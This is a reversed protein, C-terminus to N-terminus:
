NMYLGKSKRKIIILLYGLLIFSIGVFLWNYISTATDPLEEGEVGESHNTTNEDKGSDSDTADGDITKEKKSDDVKSEENDRDNKSDDKDKDKDEDQDNDSDSDDKSDDEDETEFVSPHFVAFISFHDTSAIVNGDAYNGGVEKWEAETENWYYVLLDENSDTMETIAFSLTVKETFTSITADGQQLTMLYISSSALDSSPLVDQNKEILAITITLAEEKEFNVAPIKLEIDSKSLHITVNRDVLSNIQEKTFRIEEINELENNLAITLTGNEAVTNVEVDSVGVYNGYNIPTAIVSNQRELVLTTVESEVKEGYLGTVEAWVDIEQVNGIDESIFINGERDFTLIDPHSTQFKITNPSTVPADLWGESPQQDKVTPWGDEWILPDIMLPRRTAGPPLLPDNKDIAHYVIWDQGVEDTILANHGPGVFTDGSGRLIITGQEGNGIIDNGDKDLYPGKLSESRAVGVRYRSNAGDCCSDMSGFFYYYGDRKVIYPAEFTTGAIQFKEGVYDLGDESLEIGWIGHWSGWFLYPTGDDDVFLQPDISNNVGIENSDFLMGQDEFPGAPHDAIAVGIAPSPDHWISVSYYLYYKDNFHVIDPAWLFGESKWNPKEEFAHGIFEWNILDLSRVIPVPRLGEGDGWDDETGYAYYYGDEGKIISPDALVPEFVPNKFQKVEFPNVIDGNSKHIDLLGNIQLGPTFTTRDLRFDADTVEVAADLEFHVKYTNTIEGDLSTVQIESTGPLEDTDSITYHSGTQVNISPVRPFDFPLTVTYEFVDSDFGEITKGNVRLDILSADVTTTDKVVHINKFEVATDESVLGIQGSDVAFGREKMLEGNLFFKFNHGSKEVRLTNFENHNFDHPLTVNSWGAVEGNVVGYTALANYNKDLWVSVFNDDDQYVAYLGHKNYNSVDGRELLRIDAEVSYHTDLMRNQFIRHWDWTEGVTTSLLNESIEWSGHTDGNWAPGWGHNVKEDNVYINQFIAATDETVLGVQGKDVAFTREIIFEDNLYFRFQHGTKEVKLSNWDSPNYDDPLSGNEWDQPVGDVEGYTALGHDNDIFATVFNGADYYVAYIGYKPYAESDGTELWQIDVEVTYDENYLANKYLRHWGSGTTSTFTENEIEWQGNESQGFTSPGWEAHNHSSSSYVSINSLVFLLVVIMFYKLIKM